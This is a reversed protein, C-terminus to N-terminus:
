CYGAVVWKFGEEESYGELVPEIGKNAMLDDFSAITGWRGTNLRMTPIGLKYALEIQQIAM